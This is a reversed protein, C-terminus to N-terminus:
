EYYSVDQFVNSKIVEGFRKVKLYDGKGLETTAIEPKGWDNALEKRADISIAFMILFSCQDRVTPAIQTLKQAIFHMNHGYHRGRTALAYSNDRNYKDISEGSEDIFVACSRTDKHSIVTMFEDYDDTLFDARWREDKLPDLVITKIGLESYKYALNVAYTTKGSETMGIIMSHPM